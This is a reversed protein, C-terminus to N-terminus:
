STITSVKIKDYAVVQMKDCTITSTKDHRLHQKFIIDDTMVLLTEFFESDEYGRSM